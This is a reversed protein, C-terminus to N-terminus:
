PAPSAAGADHTAARVASLFEKFPQPPEAAEGGAPPASFHLGKLNREVREEGTKPNTRVTFKGQAWGVIHYHKGAADGAPKLFLVAREGQEFVAGAFLNLQESAFSSFLEVQLNGDAAAGKLLEEAEVTVVTILMNKEGDWESRQDTMHCVCIITAQGALDALSMRAITPVQPPKAAHGPAAFALLFLAAMVGMVISAAARLRRGGRDSTRDAKM